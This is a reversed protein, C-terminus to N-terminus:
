CPRLLTGDGANHGALHALKKEVGSRLFGRCLRVRRSKPIQVTKVVSFAWVLSSVLALVRLFETM